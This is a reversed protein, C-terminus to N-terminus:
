VPWNTKYSFLETYNSQHGQFFLSSDPCLCFNQNLNLATSVNSWLWLWFCAKVSQHDTGEGSSHYWIKLVFGGSFLATSNFRQRRNCSFSQLLRTQMMAHNLFVSLQRNWSCTKKSQKVEHQRIWDVFKHNTWEVPSSKAIIWCSINIIFSQLCGFM